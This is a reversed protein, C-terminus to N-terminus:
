ESPIKDCTLLYQYTDSESNAYSVRVLQAFCGPRGKIPIPDGQVRAASLQTEDCGLLPVIMFSLLLLNRM